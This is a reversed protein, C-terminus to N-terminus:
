GLLSGLLGTAAGSSGVVTTNALATGLGTAALTSSGLSGVISATAAPVSTAMNAMANGVGTGVGTLMGSIGGGVGSALSGAVDATYVSTLASGVAKDLTTITAASDSLFSKSLAAAGNVAMSLTGQAASTIDSTMNAALTSADKTVAKDLNTAATVGNTMLTNVDSVSIGAPAGGGLLGGVLGTVTSLLGGVNLGM